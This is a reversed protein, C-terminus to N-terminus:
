RIAELRECLKAAQYFDYAAQKEIWYLAHTKFQTALAVAVPPTIDRRGHILDNIYAASFGTAKALEVQGTDEFALAAKILTGPHDAEQVTFTKSRDRLPHQPKPVYRPLGDRLPRSPPASPRPAQPTATM